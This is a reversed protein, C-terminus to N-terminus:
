TEATHLVDDFFGGADLEARFSALEKGALRVLPPRVPGVDLGTTAMTAKLARVIGYRRFIRILARSRAQGRRASELDGAAFAAMIGRHLRATLSYTGGVAGRAGLACAALLCEDLGFLLDLRGGAADLCLGFDALDPSSFKLGALAELRGEAAELFEVARVPSGTRDPIHYYYFPMGPAADAVAVCWAVVEEARTPRSYVAPVAAVGDVELSRAHAALRRADVVSEAGVHVILRLDEGVVDRWAEALAVREEVSLGLGEGTTGGVFVGVLGAARLHDAYPAVRGLDLTGDEHMPTHVAAILGETPPM